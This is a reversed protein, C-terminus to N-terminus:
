FFAAPAPLFNLRKTHSERRQVPQPSSKHRCVPLNANFLKSFGFGNRIQTTKGASETDKQHIEPTRPLLKRSFTFSSTNKARNEFYLAFHKQFPLSGARSVFVGGEL